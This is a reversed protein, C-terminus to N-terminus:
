PAPGGADKELWDILYEFTDAEARIIEISVRELESSGDHVEHEVLLHAKMPVVM